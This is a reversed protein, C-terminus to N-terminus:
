SPDPAPLSRLRAKLATLDDALPTTSLSRTELDRLADPSPLDWGLRAALAERFKAPHATALFVGREGPRLQRRLAGHAVAGHPDATYGQARLARLSDLTADDDLSEWRLARRTAGADRGHLWDIREWNSPDGIDMANSLTALSPRPRYPGGDLHDPVARNANSAAVLGAIPLGIRRALLGACLNGFNGCPVAFVAAGAGKRRLEAAAEAYYLTQALLRSANISNASILGLEESLAGDAFCAKVLSQCADFGGEVAFAHINAGLGAIQREQSPTVGRAPYLVAARFGRRRWFAHAVAAGTDGSTATLVLRQKASLRALVAAMVRIGVDKFALTPGHFLELASMREDVEVLPVSFDLAERSIAEWVAANWAGSLHHLLLGNRAHWPLNLVADVDPLPDLREPMFLGGDDPLNRLVAEEFSLRHGADRTSVFTM